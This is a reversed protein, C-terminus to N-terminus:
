PVCQGTADCTQGTPCSGCSQSCGNGGCVKGTCDPICIPICFCDAGLAYSQFGAPCQGGADCYDACVSLGCGGDACDANWAAPYYGSAICEAVGGPCPHNIPDAGYGLCQMVGGCPPYSDNVIGFPCPDGLVGGAVCAGSADCVQGNSCDGCSGGCGDSGCDKGTCDPTCPMMCVWFPDTAGGVNKCAWGAGNDPCEQASQSPCTYGCYCDM